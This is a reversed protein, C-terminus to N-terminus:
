ECVCLHEDCSGGLSITCGSWSPSGGTMTIEQETFAGGTFLPGAPNDPSDDDTRWGAVVEAARDLALTSM